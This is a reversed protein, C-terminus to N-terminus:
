EVLTPEALLGALNYPSGEGTRRLKLIGFLAGNGCNLPSTTQPLRWCSLGMKAPPKSERRSEDVTETQIGVCHCEHGFGHRPQTSPIDFPGLPVLVARNQGNSM